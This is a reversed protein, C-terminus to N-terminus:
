IPDDKYGPLQYSLYIVFWPDFSQGDRDTQRLSFAQQMHAAPEKIGTVFLTLIVVFIGITLYAMALEYRNTEITEVVLNCKLNCEFCHEELLWKIPERSRRILM